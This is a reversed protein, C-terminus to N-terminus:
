LQYLRPTKGKIKFLLPKKKNVASDFDLAPNKGVPLQANQKLFVQKIQRLFNAGRNLNLRPALQSGRSLKAFHMM